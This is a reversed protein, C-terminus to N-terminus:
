WRDIDGDADMLVFAIICTEDFKNSWAHNNGRQVLVDGAELVLDDEEEDMMMVIKGKVVVAYDVSDTRHMFPHRQNDKIRDAAGMEAFAARGDLTKMVEPDEPEFEVFRFVSGNQPPKLVLPGDLTEDPGDFRPQGETKWFNTLTVGPRNPRSLSNTAIEDSVVIAKGSDDHGTVIRRIGKSM